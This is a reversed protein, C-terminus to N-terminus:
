VSCGHSMGPSMPGMQFRRSRVLIPALDLTVLLDGVNLRDLHAWEYGFITATTEYVRPDGHRQWRQFHRPCMGRADVRRRCGSLSCAADKRSGYPCSGAPARGLCGGRPADNEPRDRRDAPVSPQQICRHDSGPHPGQLGGPGRLALRCRGRTGGAQRGGVVVRPRGSAPGRHEEDRGPRADINRSGRLSRLQRARCLVGPMHCGLQNARDRAPLRTIHAISRRYLASYCGPRASNGGSAARVTPGGLVRAQRM